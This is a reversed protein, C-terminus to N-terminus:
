SMKNQAIYLVSFILHCAFISTARFSEDVKYNHEGRGM